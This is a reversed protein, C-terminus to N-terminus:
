ARGESEALARRLAAIVAPDPGETLKVAKRGDRSGLRGEALPPAEGQGALRIRVRERAERPLPLVTGPVLAQLDALPVLERHLVAELRVPADAAARAMHRSWIDAKSPGASAKAPAAARYADLVSLPLVLLFDGSRAAEGVDLGLRLVLVDSHEPAIRVMSVHQEHRAISMAPGISPGLNLRLSAEFAELALRIFDECLGIDIATVSRAIPMPAAEPDGGMRLDVIHFLLDMSVNVLAQNSSGRVDILAMMAPVPIEELVSSLKRVECDILMASTITRLLGRLREDLLKAFNEGIAEIAPIPARGVRHGALKRRIASQGELQM